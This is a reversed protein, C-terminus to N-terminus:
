HRYFCDNRYNCYIRSMKKFFKGIIYCYDSMPMLFLINVFCNDSWYTRTVDMCLAMDFRRDGSWNLSKLGDSKFLETICVQM